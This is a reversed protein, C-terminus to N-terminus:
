LKSFYFIIEIIIFIYLYINKFWIINIILLTILLVMYLNITYKMFLTFAPINLIWYVQNLGIKDIIYMFISQTGHSEITSKTEWNHKIINRNLSYYKIDNFLTKWAIEFDIHYNIQDILSLLKKAGQKNIIYCTMSLPYIPRGIIIGNSLKYINEYQHCNISQGCYLSLIDFNLKDKINDIETIVNKFESDIISDDELIIYHNTTNDNILEKWLSIHSLACGVLGHNCLILRCAYTTNDYIQEETLKKGEIASFKKFKINYKGLNKSINYLRDKSRELNIVHVNDLLM